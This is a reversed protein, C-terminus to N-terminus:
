QSVTLAVSTETTSVQVVHHMVFVSITAVQSVVQEVPEFMVVMLIM